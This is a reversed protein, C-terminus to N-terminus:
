RMPRPAGTLPVLGGSSERGSEFVVLEAEPVLDFAAPVTQDRVFRVAADWSAADLSAGYAV